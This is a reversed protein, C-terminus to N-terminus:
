SILVKDNNLNSFDKKVFENNLNNTICLFKKLKIMSHRLFIVLIVRFHYLHM